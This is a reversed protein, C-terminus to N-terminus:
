ELGRRAAMKERIREVTDKAYDILDQPLSIEKSEVLELATRSIIYKMTESRTLLLQPSLRDFISLTGYDIRVSLIVSASNERKMADSYSRIKRRTSNPRGVINLAEEVIDDSSM